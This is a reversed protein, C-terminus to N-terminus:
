CFKLRMKVCGIGAWREKSSGGWQWQWIGSVMPFGPKPMAQSWEGASSLPTALLCGLPLNPYALNELKKKANRLSEYFIHFNFILGKGFAWKNNGGVTATQNNLLPKQASERVDTETMELGQLRFKTLKTFWYNSLSMMLHWCDSFGGAKTLEPISALGLTWYQTKVLPLFQSSSLSGLQLNGREVASGTLLM